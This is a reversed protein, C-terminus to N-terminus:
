KILEKFLSMAKIESNKEFLSIMKKSLFNFNSIKKDYKTEILIRPFSTKRLKKGLFIEEKLKEGKKLGTISIEIDGKNNNDKLTYGYLSIMKKAIDLIKIPKGMDLAYIKKNKAILTSYLVLTVADSINMFYRTVKKHTVTVPYKNEIQNKFIPIVSGSSNVVNGFRVSFFKSTKSNNCNILIKECFKKTMGMIGAPNVAKDSSILCFYKVHNRAAENCCYLTSLINNKIGSVYNKELLEVHKYAAAHYFIDIKESKFINKVFSIDTLNGLVYKINIKNNKNINEIKNKLSFLDYESKEILILQKVKLNIIETSIYSGISGGAGSIAVIKNAFLKNLILHESKVRKPFLIEEYNIERFQVDKFNILDKELPLFNIRKKFKELKKFIAEKKKIEFHDIAVLFDTINYDNIGKTINNISYVKLGNIMTRDEKNKEDIFGYVMYTSSKNLFKAFEVSIHNIGVILCRKKLNLNKKDDFLSGYIVNSIFFRSFIFLFYFIIPQVIILTRPIVLNPNERLKIMVIFYILYYVTFVSLVKFNFQVNLYRFVNSYFNNLIFIPSFIIISVFFVKFNLIDILLLRPLSAFTDLRLAYAIYTALVCNFVDILYVLLIKLIRSNKM